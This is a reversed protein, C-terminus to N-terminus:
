TLTALLRQSLYCNRILFGFSEVPILVRFPYKIDVCPLCQNPLRSLESYYYCGAYLCCSLFM